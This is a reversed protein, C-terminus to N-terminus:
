NKYMAKPLPGVEKAHPYGTEGADSAVFSRKEMSHDRFEQWFGNLWIQSLKNKLEIWNGTTKTDRKISTSYKTAKYYM